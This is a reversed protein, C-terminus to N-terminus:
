AGPVECLIDLNGSAFCRVSDSLDMLQLMSENPKAADSLEAASYKFWFKITYDM